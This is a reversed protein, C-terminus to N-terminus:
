PTLYVSSSCSQCEYIIFYEYYLNQNFLFLDGCRCLYIYGKEEEVFQLDEKTINLANEYKETKNDESIEKLIFEYAWLLTTFNISNTVNEKVISKDKEQIQHQKKEKDTEKTDEKEQKKNKKIIHYNSKDPHYLLALKRFKKKLTEITCNRSVNLIEYPNIFTDNEM